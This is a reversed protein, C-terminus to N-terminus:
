NIKMADDDSQILDEVLDVEDLSMYVVFLSGNNKLNKRPLYAACILTPFHPIYLSEGCQLKKRRCKIRKLVKVAMDGVDPHRTFKRLPRTV